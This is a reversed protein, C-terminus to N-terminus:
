AHARVIKESGLIGKVGDDFLGEFVVFDGVGFVDDGSPGIDDDFGGCVLAVEEETEGAVGEPGFHNDFVGFETIENLAFGTEVGRLHSKVVVLLVAREGHVGFDLAVSEGVADVVERVGGDGGGGVRDGFEELFELGDVEFGRWGFGFVGEAFEEFFEVVAVIGGMEGGVMLVDFLGFVLLGGQDMTVEVEAVNEKVVLVFDDANDIEAEGTDTVGV